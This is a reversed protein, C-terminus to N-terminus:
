NSVKLRYWIWNPIMKWLAVVIAWKWDIVASTRRRDIAKKIRKAAYQLPMTMPYRQGKIFDTDIFGPKITTFSMDWGKITALQRLSEMYRVQYMKTASYSASVGIGRISAISSITAFQVHHGANSGYEAVAAAIATFGTVNVDITGKEIDMDFCANQKGMGSSYIVLDVGGLASVMSFFVTRPSTSGNSPANWNEAVDAQFPIIQQPYEKQLLLLQDFRRAAVAVKNGQAAYQQALAKGIGSSAGYLIIRKM